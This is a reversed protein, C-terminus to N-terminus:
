LQARRVRCGPDSVLVECPQAFVAWGIPPCRRAWGPTKCPFREFGATMAWGVVFQSAWVRRPARGAVNGLRRSRCPQLRHHCSSTRLSTPESGAATSSTGCTAVLAFGNILVEHTAASVARDLRRLRRWVRWGAIAHILDKPNVCVNKTSCGMCVRQNLNASHQWPPRGPCNPLYLQTGSLLSVREVGGALIRAKTSLWMCCRQNPHRAIKGVSRQSRAMAWLRPSSDVCRRTATALPGSM